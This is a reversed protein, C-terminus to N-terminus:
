YQFRRQRAPKKSKKLVRQHAALSRLSDRLCGRVAFGVLMGHAGAALLILGDPPGASSQVSFDMRHGVEGSPERCPEHASSSVDGIVGRGERM